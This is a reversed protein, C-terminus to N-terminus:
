WLGPRCQAQGSAAGAVDDKDTTCMIRDWDSVRVYVLMYANSFRAFRPGTQGFGPTMGAMDDDGGAAHWPTSTKTM